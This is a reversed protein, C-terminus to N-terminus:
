DPVEQVRWKDDLQLGIVSAPLDWRRITQVGKRIQECRDAPSVPNGACDHHGALAIVGSGHARLSIEVKYRLSAEAEVDGCSLLREPGPETVVDVYDLQYREKLWVVVPEQVRGDMCNIVTGFSPRRGETRARPGVSERASHDSNAM